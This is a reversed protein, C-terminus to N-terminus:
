DERSATRSASALNAGFSSSSAAIPACRKSPMEENSSRHRQWRVRRGAETGESVRLRGAAFLHPSPPLANRAGQGGPLLGSIEQSAHALRPCLISSGGTKPQSLIM